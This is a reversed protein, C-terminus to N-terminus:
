GVAEGALVEGIRVARELLGGVADRYVQDRALVEGRGTRDDGLRDLEEGRGVRQAQLGQRADRVARADAARVQGLQGVGPALQVPARVAAVPEDQAQVVDDLTRRLGARLDTRGPEGRQHLLDGVTVDLDDRDHVGHGVVRLRCVVSR